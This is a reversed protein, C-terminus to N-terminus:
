QMAEPSVGTFETVKEQMLKQIRQAFEDGYEKLEAELAPDQKFKADYAEAEKFTESQELAQLEAMSTCNLVENYMRECLNIVDQAEASYSGFKAVPAEEAEVEEVEEAEEVLEAEDTTAEKAEDSKKGCSAFMITAAAVAFVFIKKM